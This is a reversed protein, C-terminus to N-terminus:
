SIEKIELQFIELKTCIVVPQNHMKDTKTINSAQPKYSKESLRHQQMASPRGCYFHNYKELLTLETWDPGFISKACSCQSKFVLLNGQKTKQIQIVVFLLLVDVSSPASRM